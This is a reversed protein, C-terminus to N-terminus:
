CRPNVTTSHVPQEADSPPDFEALWKGVEDDLRAWMKDVTLSSGEVDNLTKLLSKAKFVGSVLQTLSAKALDPDLM